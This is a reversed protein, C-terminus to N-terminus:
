SVHTRLVICYNKSLVFPKKKKRELKPKLFLFFNLPQTCREARYEQPASKSTDMYLVHLDSTTIMSYTQYPLFTLLNGKKLLFFIPYYSEM